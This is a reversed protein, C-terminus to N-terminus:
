KPSIYPLAFEPVYQYSLLKHTRPHFFSLRCACLAPTRYLVSADGYKCDGLLPFGLAAMQVRIQHHRGTKLLIETLCPVFGPASLVQYELIAKKAGPTDKVCTRSTNTRADKVLYNELTGHTSGPCKGLLACYTKQFKGNTLQCNLDKAAAPTKAFVMIGEVPQDLRHIVALYPAKRPAALVLYKKLISEMDPIQMNASQTPIGANKKCVLISDDEYLIEPTM